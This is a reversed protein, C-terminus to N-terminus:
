GTDSLRMVSERNAPPPALSPLKDVARQSRIVMSTVLVRLVNKALTIPRDLWVIAERAVTRPATPVRSRTGGAKRMRSRVFQSAKTFLTPPDLEPMMMREGSPM